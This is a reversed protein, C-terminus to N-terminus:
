GLEKDEESGVQSLLFCDQLLALSLASNDVKVAPTLTLGAPLCPVM